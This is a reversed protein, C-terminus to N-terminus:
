DTNPNLTNARFGLGFDLHLVPNLAVEHYMSGQRGYPGSVLLVRVQVLGMGEEFVNCTILSLSYLIETPMKTLTRVREFSAITRPLLADVSGESRDGSISNSEAANSFCM